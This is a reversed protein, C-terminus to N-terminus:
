IHEILDTKISFSDGEKNFVVLEFLSNKKFLKKDIYTFFLDEKQDYFSKFKQGNVSVSIRFVFKNIKYKIRLVDNDVSDISEISIKPEIDLKEVVYTGKEGLVNDKNYSLVSLSHEKNTDFNRLVKNYINEKLNMQIPKNDLLVDVKDTYIDKRVQLVIVRSEDKLQKAKGAVESLTSKLVALKLEKKESIIESEKPVPIDKNNKEFVIFFLLCFIIILEVISIFVFFKDRKINKM